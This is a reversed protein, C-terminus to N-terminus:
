DAMQLKNLKERVKLEEIDTKGSEFYFERVKEQGQLINEGRGNGSKHCGQMLIGTFKVM